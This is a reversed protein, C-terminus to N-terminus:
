IIHRKNACPFSGPNPVHKRFYERLIPNNMKKEVRINVAIFAEVLEMTAERKALASETTRKFM